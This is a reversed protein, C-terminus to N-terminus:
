WGYNRAAPVVDIRGDAGITVMYGGRGDRGGSDLVPEPWQPLLEEYGNYDPWTVSKGPNQLVWISAVKHLQEVNANHATERAQRYIGNYIPLAILCLVAVILCTVVLETLSFGRENAIYKKMSWGRKKKGAQLERTKLITTSEL